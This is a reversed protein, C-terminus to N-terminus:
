GDEKRTAFYNAINTIMEQEKTLAKPSWEPLPSAPTPTTLHEAPKLRQILALRDYYQRNDRDGHWLHTIDSNTVVGITGHTWHTIKEAYARYEALVISPVQCSPHGPSFRDLAGLAFIADGQGVPSNYLGGLETFLTRQAAMAFGPHYKAWDAREAAGRLSGLGCSSKVRLSNGNQDSYKVRSYPQAVQYSDLLTSLQPLWTLSSFILDADVWCIKTFQEPVITEALNLLSEKHWIASKAEAHIIREHPPLFSTGGTPVGEAMFLPFGTKAIDALFAVLNQRPREYGQPNFHCAIIATDGTLPTEFASLTAGTHMASTFAFM